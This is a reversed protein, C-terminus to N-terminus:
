FISGFSTAQKKILDCLNNEYMKFRINIRRFGIYERSGSEIVVYRYQINYINISLISLRSVYLDFGCKIFYMTKLNSPLWIKRLHSPM